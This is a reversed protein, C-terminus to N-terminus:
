DVNAFPEYQLDPASTLDNTHHRLAARYRNQGAVSIPIDFTEHVLEPGRRFTAKLKATTIPLTLDIALASVAKLDWQPSWDVVGRARIRLPIVDDPSLVFPGTLVDRFTQKEMNPYQDVLVPHTNTWRTRTIYQTAEVSGLNLEVEGGGSDVFGILRLHSLIAKRGGTNAVAVHIQALYDRPRGESTDGVVFFILDDTELEEQNIVWLKAPDPITLHLTLATILLLVVNLFLLGFDSPGQNDQVTTLVLAVVAVTVVTWMIPLQLSRVLRTVRRM